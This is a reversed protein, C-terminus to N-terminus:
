KAIVGSAEPQFLVAVIATSRNNGDSSTWDVTAGMHQGLLSWGLASLVSIHGSHPDADPPYCLTIRSQEGSDQDELLVRSHMTVTGPPILRWPVVAAENLRREDLWPSPSDPRARRHRYVLNTLRAHDLQTLMREALALVEM